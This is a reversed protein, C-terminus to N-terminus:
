GQDDEKNSKDDSSCRGDITTRIEESLKQRTDKSQNSNERAARMFDDSFSAIDNGIVDLVTRGEASSTKFLEILDQFMTLDTFITVDGDLAGVRYMYQQIKRFTFQYDEPLSDVRKMLKKYARKEDLDGIILKIFSKFM